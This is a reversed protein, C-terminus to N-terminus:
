GQVERILQEVKKPDNACKKLAGELIHMPFHFAKYGDHLVKYYYRSPMREGYTDEMIYVMATITMPEADKSVVEVTMNEKRYFSPYGEYIDLNKEDGASIEWVLVPTNKGKNPLITACGHFALEWDELVAQGVIRADPCRQAMQEVSLNSGYAIYYKKENM